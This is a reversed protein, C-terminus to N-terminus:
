GTLGASVPDEDMYIPDEEVIWSLTAVMEVSMDGGAKESCIDRM